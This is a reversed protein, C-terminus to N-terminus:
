AGAPHPGCSERLLVTVPVVVHAPPTSPDQVRADLLEVATAGLDAAPQRVTTVSPHATRAADDDDFGTVVVDQPVRVGRARLVDLVGLATDDNGCVLAPPPGDPRGLSPLLEEALARARARSYDGRRLPAAPVPLGAAALAERVGAFRQEDDPTAEPGGVYEVRRIGHATVLHEVLARAGATNQVTVSGAAHESPTGALLVVPVRRAVHALLDDSLADGVVVLGDVRGALDHLQETRDPERAVALTLASGREWSAHEAGRVVDAFWAGGWTERARAGDDVRVSVPPVGTAHREIRSVSGVDPMCLGIIGTRRSALGRASASRVYGLEAIAAQTATRAQPSVYGSSNLLRSVTTTSVGARRAVDAITPPRTAGAGSGGAPVRRGTM